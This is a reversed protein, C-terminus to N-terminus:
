LHKQRIQTLWQPICLKLWCDTEPHSFIGNEGSYKEVMHDNLFQIYVIHWVNKFFMSVIYFLLIDEKYAFHEFQTDLPIM